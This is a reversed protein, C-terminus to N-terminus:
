GRGAGPGLDRLEPVPHAPPRGDRVALVDALVTMLAERQAEPSGSASHSTIWVNRLDWLPHTPPLPVPQVVDLLAGGLTRARLADVLADTEVIAGRAMNILICGPTVLGLARRDILGRTQPTLPLHLSIYDCAMVEEFSAARAGTRALAEPRPTRTWALVELGFVRAKEATRQGSRGFGLLGLRRGVLRQPMPLRDRDAVGLWRHERVFFPIQRAFALVGAMVYDSLEDTSFDPTHVVRVGHRRAAEVDILDYGAGVRALVRCRPLADLLADDVQGRYLFLGRTGRGHAMIAAPEHGALLELAIGAERAAALFYPPPAFEDADTYLM